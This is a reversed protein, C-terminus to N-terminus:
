RILVPSGIPVQTSIVQLADPPIRVCGDSSPRGYVDATPWTHLGVTGPRRRLHLLHRQPRRDSPRDAFLDPPRGQHVRPHVHPDGPDALRAQRGRGDM